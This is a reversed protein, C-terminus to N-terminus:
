DEEDGLREAARKVMEDAIESAIHCLVPIDDHADQTANAAVDTIAAAAYARWQVAREPESM